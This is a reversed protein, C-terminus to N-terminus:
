KKRPKGNNSESKKKQIMRNMLYQQGIQLVNSTLWYLVLGSQFNMFFITMIVPMILMMRAQAPDASTPTMKQSIFQTIGMLIVTKYPLSDDNEKAFKTTYVITAGILFTVAIVPITGLSDQLFQDYTIGIIATPITSVIIRPILMGNESKFDLHALAVLINKVEKRFFFVVVTLTGLHLILNFM